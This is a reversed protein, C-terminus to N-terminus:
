IEYVVLIFKAQFVCHYYFLSLLFEVNLQAWFLLGYVRQFVLLAQDLRVGDNILSVVLFYNRLDLFVLASRPFCNDNFPQVKIQSLLWTTERVQKVFRAIFLINYLELDFCFIKFGLLFLKGVHM